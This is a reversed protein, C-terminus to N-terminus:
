IKSKRVANVGYKFLTCFATKLSITRRSFTKTKKETIPRNLYKREENCSNYIILKSSAM